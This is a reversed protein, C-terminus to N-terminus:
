ANTENTISEQILGRIKADIDEPKVFFPTSLCQVTLEQSDPKYNWALEVGFKTTTGSSGSLAFGAAQAKAILRAFQEPTIEKFIQPTSQGV